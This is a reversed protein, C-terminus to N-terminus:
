AYIFNLLIEMLNRQINLPIKKKLNWHSNSSYIDWSTNAADPERRSIEKWFAAIHQVAICRPAASAAIDYKDQLDPANKQKDKEALVSM